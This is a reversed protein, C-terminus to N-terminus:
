VTEIKIKRPRLRDAKPLVLRLVGDKIKASIKEQDIASGLTFKRMYGGIDYEGHLLNWKNDIDDVRGMITLVNDRLDIDLKDASVGPMDALVTVEEDNEVIDANFSFYRGEFTPEPQSIELGENKINKSLEQSTNESTM